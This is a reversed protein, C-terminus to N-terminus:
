FIHELQITVRDRDAFQGFLGRRTGSFSEAALRLNTDEGIDYRLATSLLHDDDTMSRYWRLEVHLTDYAFSRRAFVTALREHGPRVLDTRTGSVRDDLYQLNLFLGFPGDADIALALTSQDLAAVDLRDGNRTNFRRGPQFAFEARFAFRGLSTEANLGFLNRREYYRQLLPTDGGRVLRGLPEFDLGSYAVASMDLMGVSRSLRLAVAGDALGHADRETVVAPAPQGPVAGYRFRPATLQFWAGDSPIEHGTADPIWALETRWGGLSRDLYVSWLSIRSRDFDDLVFERFSQPNLVDLVKLGDLRGWVIQQKGIRIIGDSLDFQIYADRIEATGVNGLRFPRSLPSYTAVNPRGPEIRDEVDLRLRGSLVVRSASSLTGEIAPELELMGQISDGVDSGYGYTLRTPVQWESLEAAGSASVILLCWAAKLFRGCM